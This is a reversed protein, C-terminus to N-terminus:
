KEKKGFLLGTIGTIVNDAAKSGTGFGDRFVYDMAEYFSELMKAPFEAKVWRESRDRNEYRFQNYCDTLYKRWDPGLLKDGFKEDFEEMYSCVDQPIDMRYYKVLSRTEEHYKKLEAIKDDNLADVDAFYQEYLHMYRAYVARMITATEVTKPTEEKLISEVRENSLEVM